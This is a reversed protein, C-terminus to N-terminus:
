VIIDESQLTTKIGQKLGEERIIDVVTPAPILIDVVSFQLNASFACGNQCRYNNTFIQITSVPEHNKFQSYWSMFEQIKARFQTIFKEQDQGLNFLLQSTEQHKGNIVFHVVGSPELGITTDFCKPCYLM